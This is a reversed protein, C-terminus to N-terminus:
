DLEILGLDGDKRRFIVAWKESEFRRFVVVDKRGSDLLLVAEEVTMPKLSYDQSRIIKRQEDRELLPPEEVVRNKRRKRGRLKEKEKKIRKEIHDFAANLSSIMDQTEEVSNLTFARSKVNIEVKNRYKEVSLILNSEISDDLIRELSELRRECYKRIDDTIETNRATFNIKM